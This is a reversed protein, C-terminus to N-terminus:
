TITRSGVVAIAIVVAVATTIDIGYGGGVATRSAVSGAGGIRYSLTVCYRGGWAVRTGDGKVTSPPRSPTRGYPTPTLNLIVSSSSHISM